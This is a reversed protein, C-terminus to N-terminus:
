GTGASAAASMVAKQIAVCSVATETGSLASMLTQFVCWCVVCVCVCVCYKISRYDM